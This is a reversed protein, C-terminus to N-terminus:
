RASLILKLNKRVSAGYDEWSFGSRTRAAARQGLKFTLDRNSRAASLVECTADLDNCPIEWGEPDEQTFFDEVGTNPTAILPLGSAAGEVMVRAFGEELSPLILVDCSRYLTALKAHSMWGHWHVVILPKKFLHAVEPHAPWGVWHLEAEKPSWALKRWAEALIRAGKRLNVGSPCIM